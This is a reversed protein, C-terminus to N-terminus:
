KAWARLTSNNLEVYVTCNKKGARQLAKADMAANDYSVAWNWLISGAFLGGAAGIAAGWPGGIVGGILTAGITVFTANARCAKACNSMVRYAETVSYSKYSYSYTGGDVYEMEEADMLVYNSPFQLACTGNNYTNMM